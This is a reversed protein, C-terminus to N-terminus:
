TFLVDMDDDYTLITKFGDETNMLTQGEEYDHTKRAEQFHEVNLIKNETTETRKFIDAIYEETTLQLLTVAKGSVRNPLPSASQEQVLEKVLDYFVSKPISSAPAAAACAM